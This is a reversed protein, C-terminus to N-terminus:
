NKYVIELQRSDMLRALARLVESGVAWDAQPAPQYGFRNRSRDIRGITLNRLHDPAAPNDLVVTIDSDPGVLSISTGNGLIATNM